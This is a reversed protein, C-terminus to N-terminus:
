VFAPTNTPSKDAAQSKKPAQQQNQMGLDMKEIPPTPFVVVQGYSDLRSDISGSLKVLGTACQQLTELRMWKKPETRQVYENDVRQVFEAFRPDALMEASFASDKLAAVLQPERKEVADFYARMQASLNLVRFRDRLEKQKWANVLLDSSLKPPSLLATRESTYADQWQAAKKELAGLEAHIRQAVAIMKQEKGAASLLPDAMISEEAMQLETLLLVARDLANIFAEVIDMDLGQTEAMTLIKERLQQVSALLSAAVGAIVNDNIM